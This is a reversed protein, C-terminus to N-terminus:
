YGMVSEEAAITRAMLYKLPRVVLYSGLREDDM